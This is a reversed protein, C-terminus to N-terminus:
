KEVPLWISFVTSGPRSVFAVTGGQRHVLAQALPLGLGSGGERGSVMPYFISQELEPPIGPGNDVIDIRICLRHLRTGITVMRQPRSRLTITPEDTRANVLAQVSNRVLNLVAQVLQDADGLFEPLSPDYDRVIRIGHAGDAEVLARVHELVEHVNTPVRAPPMAPGLMRDILKHLRDVEQIIIRTYERQADDELERSLLQAAGRIGGLPNKVEHAMGRLLASTVNQQTLMTEDRVIRHHRDVNTLELLTAEGYEDEFPHVTVDVVVPKPSDQRLTVDRETYTQGSARSRGVSNRLEPFDPLVREIPEGMLVRASLGLLDEAAGNMLVLDLEGDFLLVATVLNQMCRQAGRQEILARPNM